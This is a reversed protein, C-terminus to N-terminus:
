TRGCRLTNAVSLMAHLNPQVASLKIESSANNRFSIRCQPGDIAITAVLDWPIVRWASPRPWMWDKADFDSRRRGIWPEKLRWGNSFGRVPWVCAAVRRWSGRVWPPCSTTKVLATRERLTM